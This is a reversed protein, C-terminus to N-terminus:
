NLVYNFPFTYDQTRFISVEDEKLGLNVLKCKDNPHQLHVILSCHIDSNNRDIQELLTSTVFKSGLGYSYGYSGNFSLEM